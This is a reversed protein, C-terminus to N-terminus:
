LDIGVGAFVRASENGDKATPKNRPKAIEVFAKLGRPGSVRLGLGASIASQRTTSGEISLVSVSGGEYYGYATASTQGVALNYRLELKGASGRDGLLESPEYARLFVEGGLGFQESSTLLDSTDQASIAALLSWEGGLSQLRAAYLSLKSFRPNSGVRALMPDDPRSAGLGSLGHSFDVDILNVGGLRDTADANLGARLARIRDESVALGDTISSSGDFATLAGRVSLNVGRSRLVPYSLGLSFNTSNTDFQFIEGAKPKARSTSLSWSLQAGNYGVPADGSYALLNLRENGSGVWRVIHRDFDGFVARREAGAELRLPGVATATRNHASLSFAQLDREVVLELEAANEVQAARLSASARVGPLDNLLLLHRELTALTLPHEAQIPALMKRIRDTGAVDDAVTIRSVFGEAVRIRVRGGTQAIEQQPVLAQSLVYGAERYMASVRAAIRFVASLPIDHGVMDAWLHEFHATRLTQNGVLDVGDLRLTIGDAGPPVQEAFRDRDIVLPVDRPAPQPERPSDQPLRIVPAPQAWCPIMLMAALALLLAVVQQMVLNKRQL